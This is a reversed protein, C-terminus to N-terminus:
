LFSIPCKLGIDYRGDSPKNMFGWKLGIDYRGDSLKNMFGWKM